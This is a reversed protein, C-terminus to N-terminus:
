GRTEFGVPVDRVVRLSMDFKVGESLALEASDRAKEWTDPFSQEPSNGGEEGRVLLKVSLSKFLVAVSACLEVLAFRYGLCTRSGESFPIFSGPIPSLFGDKNSTGDTVKVWREPDFDSVSFPRKSRNKRSTTTDESSELRPWYKPHHHTASTNVFAVTDRPLLHVHGDVTISVEPGTPPVYKPIVPVVTFLRLAENIVAGVRSNMLPNYYADYTWQEPPTDGLIRDLDAQMARQAIPHCALLLIIFTLTNANTEHGALLFVWMNGLVQNPKLIAPSGDEAPLGAQVLLELISERKKSTATKRQRLEAEKQEKMEELYRRLETHATASQRHTKFPSSKLLRHPNVFITMYNALLTFVAESYTM